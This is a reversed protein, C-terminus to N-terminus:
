RQIQWVATLDPVTGANPIKSDLLFRVKSLSFNDNMTRVIANILLTGAREGAENLIDLFPASLNLYVTDVDRFVHLVSVADGIGGLKFISYVAEQVNDELTRAIVDVNESILEGNLPYFVAFTAMQMDFRMAGSDPIEENPLPNPVPWKKDLGIKKVIYDTGVYGAVFCFLIVGCWALIRLLLPPKPKKRDHKPLASYERTSNRRRKSSEVKEEFEREM